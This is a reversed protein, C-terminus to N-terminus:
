ASGQEQKGEDLLDYVHGEDSDVVPRSDTHSGVLLHEKKQDAEGGEAPGCGFLAAIEDFSKAKSTRLGLMVLTM